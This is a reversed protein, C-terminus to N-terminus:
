RQRSILYRRLLEYVEARTQFMEFEPRGQVLRYIGRHGGEVKKRWRGARERLPAVDLSRTARTPHRAFQPFAALFCERVEAPLEYFEREASDLFDFQEKWADLKQRPV